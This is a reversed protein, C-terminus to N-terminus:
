PSVTISDKLNEFTADGIGSVNKIEEITQFFGNEERYNLISDAKSSGIGNLTMLADKGDLNIHVLSETKEEAVPEVSAQNLDANQVEEGVKPIYIVMQDEVVKALNVANQDAEEIFGGARGIADIVRNNPEVTYVGPTVVAGKVDVIIEESRQNEIVLDPELELGIEKGEGEAMLGEHLDMGPAEERVNPQIASWIFVGGLLLIISLLVLVVKLAHEEFIERINEM